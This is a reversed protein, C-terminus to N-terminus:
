ECVENLVEKIDGPTSMIKTFTGMTLSPWFLAIRYKGPLSTAEKGQLIIEYPMNAVNDEGIIPLFHSEGEEQNLLGVGFVAIQEEKFVQEFVKVTNGKGAELNRRITALGEEFSGFENLVDPDTFYPMMMMYRYDPLDEKDVSGGFAEANGFSSFSEKVKNSISLLQNEQGKLQEGWYAWFMYEPNLISVITKGEKKVFGVKLVSALAGRDKFQLSLKKLESSTFCIVYLGENKGPAYEGIVEFDNTKLVSKIKTSITSIEENTELIKYFPFVEQSIVFLSSFVVGMLLIIKKM